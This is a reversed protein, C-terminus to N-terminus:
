KLDETRRNNVHTKEFYDTAASYSPKGGTSMLEMGMYQGDMHAQEIAKKFAWTERHSCSTKRCEELDERCLCNECKDM